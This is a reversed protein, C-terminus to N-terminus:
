VVSQLRDHGLGNYLLDFQQRACTSTEEVHGLLVRPIDSFLEDHFLIIGDHALVHFELFGLDLSNQKIQWARGSGHKKPPPGVAITPLTCIRSTASIGM